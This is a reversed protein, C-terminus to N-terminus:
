FFFCSFFVKRRLYEWCLLPFCVDLASAIYGFGRTMDLALYVLVSGFAIQVFSTDHSYSSCVRKLVMHRTVYLMFSVIFYFVWYRM